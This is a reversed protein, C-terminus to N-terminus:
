LELEDEEVLGYKSREITNLKNTKEILADELVKIDKKFKARTLGNVLLTWVFLAGTIILYFWISDKLPSEISFKFRLKNTASIKKENVASVVLLYDGHGLESLEIGEQANIFGKSEGDPGTLTYNLTIQNKDGLESCIFHYNLVHNDWNLDLREAITDVGNLQVKELKIMPDGFQITDEAPNYYVLGSSSAILVGKHFNLHDNALIALDLSRFSQTPKNFRELKGHNIMLTKSGISIVPNYAKISHESETYTKDSFNFEYKKTSTYVVLGKSVKEIKLIEKDGLVDKRFGIFKYNEKPMMYVGKGKLGVWIIKGDNELATVPVSTGRPSFKIPKEGRFDIRNIGGNTGIWVFDKGREICNVHKNILGHKSTYLTIPSSLLRVSFLLLFFTLSRM